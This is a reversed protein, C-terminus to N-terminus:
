DAGVMNYTNLWHERLSYMGSNTLYTIVEWKLFIEVVRLRLLKDTYHLNTTLFNVETWSFHRAYCKAGLLREFINTEKM